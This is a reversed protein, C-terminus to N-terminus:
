RVAGARAPRGGERGEGLDQDATNLPRKPTLPQGAQSELQNVFAEERTSREGLPTDAIPTGNVEATWLAM